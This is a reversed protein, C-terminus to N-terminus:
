LRGLRRANILAAGIQVYAIWTDALKQNLGHDRVLEACLAAVQQPTTTFSDELFANMTNRARTKVDGAAQKSDAVKLALPKIIGLAAKYDRELKALSDLTIGSTRAFDFAPLALKLPPAENAPQSQTRADPLQVPQPERKAPAVANRAASRVASKVTNSMIRTELFSPSSSTGRDLISPITLRLHIPTQGRASFMRHAHLGPSHLFRSIQFFKELFAVLHNWSNSFRPSVVTEKM